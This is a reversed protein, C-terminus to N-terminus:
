ESILPLSRVVDFGRTTPESARCNEVAAKHAGVLRRSLSNAVNGNVSVDHSLLGEVDRATVAGADLLDRVVRELEQGDWRSRRGHKVGIEYDGATMVAVGRVALRAQLESRLSERMAKLRAEEDRIASYFEALVEPPAAALEDLLEGTDPRVIAAVETRM